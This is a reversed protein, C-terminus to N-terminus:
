YKRFDGSMQLDLINTETVRKIVKFWASDDEKGEPPSPLEWDEGPGYGAARLTEEITNPELRDSDYGVVVRKFASSAMVEEVGDLPLLAERVAQVHHDAYMKPVHLVTKEV